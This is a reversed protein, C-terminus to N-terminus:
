ICSLTVLLHGLMFWWCEARTARGSFDLARQWGLWYFFFM